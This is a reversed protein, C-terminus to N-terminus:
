GGVSVKFFLYPEAVGAAETPPSSTLNPWTGYTVGSTYTIGPTSSAVNALTASGILRALRPAGTAGGAVVVIANDAMVGYWYVGVPLAVDPGTIDASFSGTAATSISATTAIPLGAPMSTVPDAAYLGLQINGGAALTTIRFGLDSITIARPM